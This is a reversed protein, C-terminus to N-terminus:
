AGKITIAAAPSAHGAQAPETATMLARRLRRRARHLRVSMAQRTTGLVIAAEAISLDDWGILCLAERDRESLTRLANLVRQREAIADAFDPASTREEHAQLRASLGSARRDSRAANALVGRAVGLLWPKVEASDAPVDDLRRWAVTLAEAVVDEATAPDARRLAYYYIADRHAHYLSTFRLEASEM